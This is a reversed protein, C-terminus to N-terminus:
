QYTRGHVSHTGWLEGTQFSCPLYSDNVIDINTGKSNAMIPITTEGTVLIAEGIPSVGLTLGSREHVATARNKPTVEVRFYGTDTFALTMTNIQLRGRLVNGKAQDKIYWESPRARMTYNKGAYYAGAHDGKVYLTNGTRKVNSLSVGNNAQVIAYDDDSITYPMAFTTYNTAFDYIGSVVTLRDLHIRFECNTTPVNELEIKELAINVGRKVVMYLTTQLCAMGLVECDFTWRSWQSMAKENGMWYYRHVYLGNPDGSSHVFVMSENSCAEIQISGNRIYRPIHATIDAADATLTDPQIMYELMSVFSTKPSIFFVSSGIAKPETLPAIEYATTSNVAVSRPTFLQDGSSVDFQQQGGFVLLSKDFGIASWLTSVSSGSGSCATDIPDDDLLDTATQRWFNFFEGAQSLIINDGALFGLRDKYFVLNHIERGVFSPTPCKVEDGVKRIEWDQVKFEFQPVGGIIGTRVLVHPMTSAAFTTHIGPEAVENWVDGDYQLYYTSFQNMDDGAIKWLDGSAPPNMHDFNPDDEDTTSDRDPLDTMIQATDFITGPAVATTMSVPITTNVVFTYDAVTLARISQRPEPDVLYAKAAVDPYTINCKLGAMTFVEIPVGADGTFVVLYRESTDRNIKHINCGSTAYSSLAALYQTNPRKYLGDVVTALANEQLELQTDLRSTTAQQSVGNLFGPIVKREKGM